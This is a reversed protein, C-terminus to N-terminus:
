VRIEVCCSKAPACTPSAPRARAGTGGIAAKHSGAVRLLTTPVPPAAPPAVGILSPTSRTRV